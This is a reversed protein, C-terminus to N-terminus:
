AIEQQYKKKEGWVAFAYLGLLVFGLVVFVWFSTIFGVVIFLIALLPFFSLRGRARRYRIKAQNQEFEKLLPGKSAEERRNHDVVDMGCHRCVKAEIKIDEACQPCQTTKLQQHQSQLGEHKVRAQEAERQKRQYGILIAIGIAIGFLPFFILEM